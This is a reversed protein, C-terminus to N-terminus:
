RPGARLVAAQGTFAAYRSIADKLADRASRPFPRVLQVEITTEQVGARPRWHGVLQADYLIAHTFPTPELVITSRKQAADLAGKSETYGVILEDYGQLLHAEGSARGAVPAGAFYFTHGSIVVEELRPRVSELAERAAPAPLSSWWRYDKLTAPGHSAFYRLTLEALAEDRSLRRANPAREELLAYTQQKRQPTGSCVVGDLEDRMLLHALTQGRAPLGGHALADSLEARTLHRGGELAQVVLARSKAYVAGDLGLRRDYSAMMTRVRPATLELMWRIDAPLVFHWSPRLVHTRLIRGEAVAREVVDDGARKMRQGISWKALAYEQSQVAGLWGVVDEVTAFRPATVSQTRLRQRMIRLEDKL